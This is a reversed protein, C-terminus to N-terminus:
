PELVHKSSDGRFTMEQLVHESKANETYRQETRSAKEGLPVLTCKAKAEGKTGAVGKFVMIHETGNMQHLVQYEGAPLLTGGVLTPSSFVITQKNAIGLSNDSAQVLAATCLILVITMTIVFWQKRMNAEM